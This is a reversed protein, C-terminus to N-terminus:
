ASKRWENKLDAVYEDINDYDWDEINQLDEHIIFDIIYYDILTEDGEWYENIM